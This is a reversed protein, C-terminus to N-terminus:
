IHACIVYALAAANLLIIFTYLYAQPVLTKRRTSSSHGLPICLMPITIFIPLLYRTQVGLIVSQGTPTHQIYLATFVLAVTAITIGLTFWRYLHSSNKSPNLREEFCLALFVTFIGFLYFGSTPIDLWELQGLKDLYMGPMNLSNDVLVSAYRVPHTLIYHIQESSNAGNQAEMVTSISSWLLFLGVTILLISLIYFIKQKKNKFCATPIFFLLLCIPFYVPKVATLVICSLLILLFHSFKFKIKPTYIFRLVLTIIAIASCFIIGDYTIGAFLQMTMPLCALLFLPKKLIPIFKLCFYIIAICTALGCLRALYLTIIMPLHLVRGAFMGVVQPTYEIPNAGITKWFVQNESIPESIRNAIASYGGKTYNNSLNAINEPLYNGTIDQETETLIGGQSISYVRWIHTQEDPVRGIPIAFLYMLGLVSGVVLFIREIPWKKQRSWFVFVCMAISIIAMIAIIFISRKSFVPLGNQACIVLYLASNIFILAFIFFLLKYNTKIFDKLKAGFNKM